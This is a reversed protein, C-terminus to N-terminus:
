LPENKKRPQYATGIAFFALFFVELVIKFSGFDLAIWSQQRSCGTRVANGAIM